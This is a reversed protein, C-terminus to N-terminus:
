GRYGIATEKMVRDWVNDGHTGLWLHSPYVCAPMDCSHLVDLGKPIPGYTLLWAARHARESKGAFQFKGYGRDNIYATWWWCAPTIKVKSWFRYQASKM